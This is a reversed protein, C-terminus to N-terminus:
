VEDWDLCTPWTQCSEIVKVAATLSAAASQLNTMVTFRDIYVGYPNIRRPAELSAQAKAIANEAAATVLGAQRIKESM